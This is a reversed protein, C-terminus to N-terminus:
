LAMGVVYMRVYKEKAQTLVSPDDTAIYVRRRDVTQRTELYEYYQQVHYMYEEIGHYSKENRIKDTRRVHVSYSNASGHFCLRILRPAIIAITGWKEFHPPPGFYRKAGVKQGVFIHRGRLKTM